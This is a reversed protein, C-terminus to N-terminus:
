EERILEIGCLLPLSDPDDNSPVCTINVKGSVIVNNYTKILTKNDEGAESVIDFNDLVNKGQLFVDFVREGASKNELEAFYLKVTFNTPQVPENEITIVLNLPGTLASSGM